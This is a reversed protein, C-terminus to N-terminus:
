LEGRAQNNLGVAVHAPGVACFAPECGVELRTSPAGSAVDAVALERLSILHALRPGCSAYVAPLAALFSILHGGSTSVTLM